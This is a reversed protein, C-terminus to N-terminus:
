PLSGNFAQEYTQKRGMIDPCALDLRLPTLSAWGGHVAEADSGPGRAYTPGMEGGIWFYPNKRPDIRQEVQDHYKRTDQGTVRFGLPEEKPFNVNWIRNAPLPLAEWRELFRTIWAGAAALDGLPDISFAASRAGQQSGEFAAGVTGSYFVDEGLNYGHNVGSLVWDPARELVARVGVLVCDVPTGNCAYRDGGLDVLRLIDNLSMASSVASRNRDPAVVVVRGFRSAVQALTALGPAWCGDDNTILILRETM